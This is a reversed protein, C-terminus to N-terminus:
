EVKPRRLHLGGRDITRRVTATEAGGDKRKSVTRLQWHYWERDWVTRDTM